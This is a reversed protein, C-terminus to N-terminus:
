KKQLRKIEKELLEIKTNTEKIYTKLKRHENLYKTKYSAKNFEELLINQEAQALALTKVVKDIRRIELENMKKIKTEFIDKLYKIYINRFIIPAKRTLFEAFILSSFITLTIGLALLIAKSTGM